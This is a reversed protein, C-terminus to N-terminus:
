CNKLVRATTSKGVAVSGSIGIIFPVTRVQKHLFRAKTTQWEDFNNKQLRIMHVLPKYIDSVDQISIQDNFAKIHKLESPTLPLNAESENYFHKWEGKTFSYYNILDDMFQRIELVKRNM